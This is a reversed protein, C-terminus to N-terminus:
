KVFFCINKDCFNCMFNTYSYVKTDQTSKVLEQVLTQADFIFFFSFFNLLPSIQTAFKRGGQSHHKPSIGWGQASWAQSLDLAAFPTHLSIINRHWRTPRILIRYWGSRRRESYGDGKSSHAYRRISLTQCFSSHCGFNQQVFMWEIVSWIM